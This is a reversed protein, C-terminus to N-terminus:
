RPPRARSTANFAPKADFGFPSSNGRRFSGTAVSIVWPRPLKGDTRQLFAAFLRTSQPCTINSGKFISVWYPGSPFFLAGIRDNHQVRFTASCRVTQTPFQNGGGGPTPDPELRFGYSVSGRLFTADNPLLTWGNPLIGDFDMLFGKALSTAQACSPSLPGLRDIIYRGKKIVLAGVRDNQAVVLRQTCVLGGGGTGGGARQVAFSQGRPHIFTGRGVGQVTTRWSNPLRGDWDSLFQAFLQSAASCGVGTSRINYAGAPLSLNGIRDNHLVQFTGPCSVTAARAPIANALCFVLITTFALVVAGVRLRLARPAFTCRSSM